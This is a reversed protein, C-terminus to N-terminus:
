LPALDRCFIYGMKDTVVNRVLAEASCRVIGNRQTVRQSQKYIRVTIVDEGREFENKPDKIIRYVKGLEPTEM